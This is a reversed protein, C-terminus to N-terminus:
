YEGHQKKRKYVCRHFVTLVVLLVVASILIGVTVPWQSETDCDSCRGDASRFIVFVFLVMLGASIMLM